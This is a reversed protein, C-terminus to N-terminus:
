RLRAQIRSSYGTSPHLPAFSASSNIDGSQTKQYLLSAKLRARHKQLDGHILPEAASASLPAVRTAAEVLVAPSPREESFAAITDSGKGPTAFLLQPAELDVFLSIYNHGRKAATEDVGVRRVQPYDQKARAEEVYHELIRWLRPDHEGVLEAIAKVPMDQALVM